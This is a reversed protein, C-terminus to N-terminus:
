LQFGLVKALEHSSNVWQFLSQHQSPNAAPPSPSSLPHSSLPHCWQCLPRSDSHVRPIPTPCPPRAHQSEHPPLSDSMVSHSFQIPGFQHSWIIASFYLFLIEVFILLYWLKKSQSFVHKALLQLFGQYIGEFAELEGLALSSLIFFTLTSVIRGSLDYKRWSLLTTLFHPYIPVVFSLLYVQTNRWHSFIRLTIPNILLYQLDSSLPWKLFWLFFIEEPKIILFMLIHKVQKKKKKKLLNSLIRWKHFWLLYNHLSYDSILFCLM